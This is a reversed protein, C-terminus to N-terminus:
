KLLLEATCLLQVLVLLLLLLLLYLAAGLSLVMMLTLLLELLAAAAANIVPVQQTYHPPLYWVPVHYTCCLVSWQVATSLIGVLLYTSSTLTPEDAGIAPRGCEPNLRVDSRVVFRMLHRCLANELFLLRIFRNKRKTKTQHRITESGGQSRTHGCNGLISHLCLSATFVVTSGVPVYILPVDHKFSSFSLM